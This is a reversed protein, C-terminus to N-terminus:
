KKQWETKVFYIVYHVALGILLPGVGFRIWTEVDAPATLGPGGFTKKAIALWCFGLLWRKFIWFVMEGAQDLMETSFSKTPNMQM